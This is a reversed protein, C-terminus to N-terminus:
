GAIRVSHGDIGNAGVLQDVSHLAWGILNGSILIAWTHWGLDDTWIYYGLAALHLAIASKLLWRIKRLEAM